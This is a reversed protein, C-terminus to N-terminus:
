RWTVSRRVSTDAGDALMGKYPCANWANCYAASCWWARESKGKPAHPFPPFVGAAIQKAYEFVALQVAEVQEATVSLDHIKWEGKQRNWVWYEFPVNHALVEPTYVDDALWVYMPAQIKLLHKTPDWGRKATKWDYMCSTTVLDPTGAGWADRGDPLTGLHRWRRQEHYRYSAPKLANQWFSSKWEMFAWYIESVTGKVEEATALDELVFGDKLAAERLADKAQKKLELAFDPMGRTVLTIHDAILSHLATGLMLSENPTRDYLPHDRLGIRAPCVMEEIDSQSIIVGAPDDPHAPM